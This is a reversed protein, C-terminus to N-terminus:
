QKLLLALGGVVLATLCLSVFGYVLAKVPWFNEKTVYNDKIDKLVEKNDIMHNKIERIDSCILPIRSIAIYKENQEHENM